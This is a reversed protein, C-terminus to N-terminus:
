RYGADAPADAPVLPAPPVPPVAPVEPVLPIEPSLPVEPVLPTVPAPKFQVPSHNFKTGYESFSITLYPLGYTTYM